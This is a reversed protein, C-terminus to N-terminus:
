HIITDVPETADVDHSADNDEEDNLNQADEVISDEQNEVPEAILSMGVVALAIKPFYFKNESKDSYSHLSDGILNIGPNIFRSPHDSSVSTTNVSVWSPRKIRSFFGRIRYAAM